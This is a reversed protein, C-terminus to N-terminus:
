QPFVVRSERSNHHKGSHNTSTSVIGPKAHAGFIGRSIEHPENGSSLKTIYTCQNKTVSHKLSVKCIGMAPREGRERTRGKWGERGRVRQEENTTIFLYQSTFELVWIRKLSEVGDRWSLSIVVNGGERESVDFSEHLKWHWNWENGERLFCLLPWKIHM